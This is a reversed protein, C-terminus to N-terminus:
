ASTRAAHVIVSRLDEVLGYVYVGVGLQQGINEGLIAYAHQELSRPEPRHAQPSAKPPRASVV